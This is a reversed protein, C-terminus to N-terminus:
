KKGVEAQSVSTVAINSGKKARKEAKGIKSRRAARKEAHSM